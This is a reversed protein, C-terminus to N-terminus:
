IVHLAFSPNKKNDCVRRVTDSLDGNLHCMPLTSGLYWFGIVQRKCHSKVPRGTIM